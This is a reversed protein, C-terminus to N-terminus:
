CCGFYHRNKSVICRADNDFRETADAPAPQDARPFKATKQLLVTQQMTDIASRLADLASTIKGKCRAVGNVHKSFAKVVAATADNRPITRLADNIATTYTALLVAQADGIKRGVELLKEARKEMWEAFSNEVAARADAAAM